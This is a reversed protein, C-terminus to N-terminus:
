EAYGLARLESQAQPPLSHILASPEAPSIAQIWNTHAEQLAATMPTPSVEGPDRELHFAQADQPGWVGKEVGDISLAVQGERQSVLPMGPGATTTWDSALGTLRTVLDPIADITMTPPLSSVDGAILPVHTLPELVHRGHGMTDHEGLLEGHDSTVIILADDRLTGLASLAQGLRVDTDEVVAGYAARYAQRIGAQQNRKAAGIQLGLSNDFWQSDVGARRQSAQSPRLPSHPGILHLYFFQRRTPDVEQNVISALKSSLQSDTTRIWRNFGRDFGLAESLYPNAYLGTTDFGADRLREALLRIPPLDPYQGIRAAPLDWGHSRVPAGSFLSVISPVTWTGSAWARPVEAGSAAISDLVPTHATRATDARLTDIVVLVVNHFPADSSKRTPTWPKTTTTCSMMLLLVLGPITMRM